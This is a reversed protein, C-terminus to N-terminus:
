GPLEAPLKHPHRDTKCGGPQDLDEEEAQRPHTGAPSRWRFLEGRSTRKRADERSARRHHKVTLMHRRVSHDDEVSYQDYTDRVSKAM